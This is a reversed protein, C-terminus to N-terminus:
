PYKIKYLFNFLSEERVEDFIEPDDSSRSGESYVESRDGDNIIAQRGAVAGVSVCHPLTHNTSEVM